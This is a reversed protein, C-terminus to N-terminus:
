HSERVGQLSNDVSWRGGFEPQPFGTKEFRGSGLQGPYLFKQLGESLFVAGVMFRILCATKSSGTQIIRRLM